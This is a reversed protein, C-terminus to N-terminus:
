VQGYVPQGSNWLANAAPTSLQYYSNPDIGTPTIGQSTDWNIAEAGSQWFNNNHFLNYDLANQTLPIYQSAAAPTPTPTPAPTPTPSPSPTPTPTPQGAQLQSLQNSLNGLGTALSAYNASGTADQNSSPLVLTPTTSNAQPSATSSASKRKAYLYILALVALGGGGLIGIKKGPSWSNIGGGTSPGSTPVPSSDDVPPPGPDSGPSVLTDSM